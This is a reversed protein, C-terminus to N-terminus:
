TVTAQEDPRRQQQDCPSCRRRSREPWTPPAYVSTVSDVSMSSVCDTQCHCAHLCYVFCFLVSVPCLQACWVCLLISFSCVLRRRCFADTCTKNSLARTGLLSSPVAGVPPLLLLAALLLSSPVAGVPALLLLASPKTLDWLHGDNHEFM